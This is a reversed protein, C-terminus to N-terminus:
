LALKLLPALLLFIVSNLLVSVSYCFGGIGAGASGNCRILFSYCFQLLVGLFCRRHLM